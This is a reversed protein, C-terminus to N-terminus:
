RGMLPRWWYKLHAKSGIGANAVIDSAMLHTWPSSRDGIRSGVRILAGM